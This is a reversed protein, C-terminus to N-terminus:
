AIDTIGYHEEWMRLVILSYLRDGVSQGDLLRQRYSSLADQRILSSDKNSESQLLESWEKRFWSDVPISFGQKRRLDLDKPLLRSGLLRLLIKRKGNTAKLHDPVSGFAFEVVDRDLFPARVELSTLMSARDVKVLVDDVMYTTFDVATSRQLASAREQMHSWRFREPAILEEFSMGALPDSLMRREDDRFVRGAQAIALGSEEGLGLLYGRGTTGPKLMRRAGKSVLSRVVGPVVSRLRDQQAMMSHRRYGGFLEDGGDGGLAVTAHKRIERCVMYTPIMSSDSIPDDFQRVLSSLMDQSAPEAELENHDSGIHRAVMSAYPGEDYTGFGTFRATFTKVPKSSVEAAIASVISSDVGGSLLIGVPVDAILQGKVSHVLLEHLRDVYQGDTRLKKSRDFAPLNWYRDIDINLSDVDVTIRHGAELRNIGDIMSNSGTVYGYALYENLSARSVKRSIEPDLLLAKLESAFIFRGDRTKAHFLPKEGARDRALLLQRRRADYLAFAFMGVLRDVFDKGWEQYASLLVETDSQSTFRHGKDRLEERLERYNYIEGNFSIAGRSETATMPQHGGPSLDIIALRRHGLLVRRDDSMWSGCSDPGRHLLSDRQDELTRIHADRNGGVMGVIGCM